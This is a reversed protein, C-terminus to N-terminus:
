LRLRRYQVPGSHLRAGRTVGGADVASIRKPMSASGSPLRRAARVSDAAAIANAAITGFSETDLTVGDPLVSSVGGEANAASVTTDGEAAIAASFNLTGGATTILQSLSGGEEVHTVFTDGVQLQAANTAGSGTVNFSSVQPLPAPGFTGGATPAL